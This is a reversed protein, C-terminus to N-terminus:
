ESPGASGAFDDPTLAKRVKTWPFGCSTKDVVVEPDRCLRTYCRALVPNATAEFCSFRGARLVAAKFAEYGGKRLAASADPVADFSCMIGSM